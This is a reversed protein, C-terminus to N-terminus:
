MALSLEWFSSDRLLSIRLVRGRTKFFDFFVFEILVGFEFFCEIVLPTSGELFLTLLTSEYILFLDTTTSLQHSERFVVVTQVEFLAGFEILLFNFLNILDTEVM